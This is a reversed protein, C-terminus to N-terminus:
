ALELQESVRKRELMTALTDEDAHQHSSLDDLMQRLRVIAGGRKRSTKLLGFLGM